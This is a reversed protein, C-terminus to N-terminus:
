QNNTFMLKRHFEALITCSNSFLQNKVLPMGERSNIPKIIASQKGGHLHFPNSDNTLEKM